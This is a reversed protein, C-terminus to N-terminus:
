NRSEGAGTVRELEVVPIQAPADEAAIGELRVSAHAGYVIAAAGLLAVWGGIQRGGPPAIWVRVILWVLTLLALWGAILTLAVPVAPARQRAQFFVVALAAIVTLLMVWRAGSLGHWGDLSVPVLYRPGPPPSALAYTYWPLLLMAALLVVGGAGIVWEPWRVRSFRLRM